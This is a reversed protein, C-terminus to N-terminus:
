EGKKLLAFAIEAFDYGFGREFRMEGDGDFVDVRCYLKEIENLQYGKSVLWKGLNDLSEGPCKYLLCADCMCEFNIKFEKSDDLVIGGMKFTRILDEVVNEVRIFEKCFRNGFKGNQEVIGWTPSSLFVYKGVIEFFRNWGDRGFNFTISYVFDSFVVDPYIPKGDFEVDFIEDSGCEYCYDYSADIIKYFGSKFTGNKGFSAIVFDHICDGAIALKYYEETVLGAKTECVHSGASYGSWFGFFPTPITYEGTKDKLFLRCVGGNVWCNKNKKEDYFWTLRPYNGCLSNLCDVGQELTRIM